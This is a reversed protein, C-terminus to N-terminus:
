RIASELDGLAEALASAAFQRMRDRAGSWRLAQWVTRARSMAFVSHREEPLLPIEFGWGDDGADAVPPILRAALGSKAIVHPGSDHDWVFYEDSTAVVGARARRQELARHAVHAARAAADRGEFGKFGLVGDRIYGIEHKGDFVRYGVGPGVGTGREFRM